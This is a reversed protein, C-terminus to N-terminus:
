PTTPFVVADLRHRAFCDAYLQRFAPLLRDMAVRYEAEFGAGPELLAEVVERVAVGATAAALGRLDLGTPWEALYGPLEHRAEHVSVPFGVQRNLAAFGPMEVEVLEIGDAQLRQLAAAAVAEVAPDLDAWFHSREIGLRLTGAAPLDPVPEPLAGAIIED